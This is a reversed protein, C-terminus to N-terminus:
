GTVYLGLLIGAAIGYGVARTVRATLSDQRGHVGEIDAVHRRRDRWRRSAADLISRWAADLRRRRTGGACDVASLEVLRRRLGELRYCGGPLGADFWGRGVLVVMGEVRVGPGTLARVAELHLANQWLPNLFSIQCPGFRQTWTREDASGSLRGGLSKTEIVLLRDPLRALHDLQTWGACKARPLLFDHAAEVELRRLLRRVRWEGLVGRLLPRQTRWAAAILGLAPLLLLAEASMGSFPPLDVTPSPLWAGISEPLRGARYIDM